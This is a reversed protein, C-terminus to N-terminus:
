AAVDSVLNCLDKLLMADNLRKLGMRKQETDSLEHLGPFLSEALDWKTEGPSEFRSIAWAAFLIMAGSAVRLVLADNTAVVLTAVVSDDSVGPAVDAHKLSNADRRLVSLLDSVKRVPEGSSMVTGAGVLLGTILRATNGGQNASDAIDHLLVHGPNAIALVFLPDEEEFFMRIARDVLRRAMGLQIAYNPPQSGESDQTEARNDM